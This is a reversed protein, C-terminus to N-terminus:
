DKQLAKLLTMLDNYEKEARQLAYKAEQLRSHAELSKKRTFVVEAEERKVFYEGEVFDGLGLSLPTNPYVLGSFYYKYNRATVYIEVKGCAGVTDIAKLHLTQSVSDEHNTISIVKYEIIGISCPHWMKAGLQIELM